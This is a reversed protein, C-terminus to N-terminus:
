VACRLEYVVDESPRFSAAYRIIVRAVGYDDAPNGPTDIPELLSVGCYSWALRTDEPFTVPATPATLTRITTLLPETQSWDRRIEEARTQALLSAEARIAANANARFSQPFFNLIALLGALLIAMSVLVEVLSFGRVGRGGRCLVGSGVPTRLRFTRVQM